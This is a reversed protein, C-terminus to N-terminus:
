CGDQSLSAHEVLFSGSNSHNALSWQFVLGMVTFGSVPLLATRPERQQKGSLHGKGIFDGAKDACTEESLEKRITLSSGARPARYPPRGRGVVIGAQWWLLMCVSTLESSPLVWPHGSEWPPHLLPSPKKHCCHDGTLCLLHFTTVESM